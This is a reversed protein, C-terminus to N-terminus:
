ADVEEDIWRLYEDNGGIIPIAIIEPLEYSHLRKVTDVVNDLSSAKTKIILLSETESEIQGKWRFLSDVRQVVNACAALKQEILQGAVSRAEKESGTTIFVVIREPGDM